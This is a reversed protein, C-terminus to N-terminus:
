QTSNPSPLTNTEWRYYLLRLLKVLILINRKGPSFIRRRRTSDIAVSSSKTVLNPAVILTNCNVGKDEVMRMMIEAVNYMGVSTGKCVLGGAVFEKRIIIIINTNSSIGFIHPLILATYM